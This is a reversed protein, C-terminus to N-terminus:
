GVGITGSLCVAIVLDWLGRGRYNWKSLVVIVLEWLGRGRYNWESLVSSNCPGM